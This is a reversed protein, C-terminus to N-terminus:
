WQPTSTYTSRSGKEVKKSLELVTLAIHKFGQKRKKKLSKLRHKQGHKMFKQYKHSQWPTMKTRLNHKLSYIKSLEFLLQETSIFSQM